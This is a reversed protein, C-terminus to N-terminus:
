PEMGGLRPCIYLVACYLTGGSREIVGTVIFVGTENAIKELQERTGDGRKKGDEGAGGLEKRVWKEGEGRPTDGLDAADKFYQLYQNRGVDNARTGVKVGFSITRPYRGLYAEPFVILDVENAAASRVMVALHDITEQMTALTQPQAVALRLKTQTSSTM